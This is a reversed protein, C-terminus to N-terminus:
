DEDHLLDESTLLVPLFTAVDLPKRFVAEAGEQMAQVALDGVEYGTIMIVRVAPDIQRLARLVEVGNMGPMRIDLLVVDYRRRRYCLLAEGGESAVDVTYGELTLIDLMTERIGADDDVVLVSPKETM